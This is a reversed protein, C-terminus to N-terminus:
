KTYDEVLAVVEEMTACETLAKNALEQMKATDLRKMLSRTQLISTASMSFEDLGMGVLLPVATQDGAMEGCMGAWKGEAHAAKIVNNILRLISPNYPQYLYSVQENMRDAAMTYQILDNTGISFFDVEKAFQDALMAAAPIEIMIGVQIDDAVAVGEALLNAKEEDFLKKAARFETVLAVMPFMIRLKGHVSSRLLARLQTRFMADGGESLSIRLARYGLFPNMEKPLDFYPLEKDGGIDMTRVVVPKGNMGELVAKYAEYQEDETPFDQSDMYLFETRYLGVAEGGNENVGVVDKPTGINAALEFHKGDATMTEADKLLAWEAKQDAYAKGAALFEAQEAETPEIIVDGTIGNVALLQGDTVLTTINNTGLVAPIELTRAMIASHSTRGGINTIFAKVFKKDLQATDSPTLDHAVVIVEQDITAPSPLKKGLLNALVRKTVDKIDAAREQMYPNDEMGEFIAIFMDTVEKLATEANTKKARITEKMQGIMEPDALVMLHADFVAAAENGLSEVAKERIVNLEGTSAELAADLRAEENDTNEVTVTEFSLDPQVLLYAKAVAVGSSAAIGTLKEAM